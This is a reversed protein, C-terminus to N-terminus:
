LMAANCIQSPGPYDSCQLKSQQNFKRNYAEFGHKTISAFTEFLVFVNKSVFFVERTKKPWFASVFCTFNMSTSKVHAQMSPAIRCHKEVQKLFTPAPQLRHGKM